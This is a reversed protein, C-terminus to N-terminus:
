LRLQEVAGKTLSDKLGLIRSLNSAAVGKVVFSSKAELM